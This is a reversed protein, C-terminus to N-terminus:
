RADMFEGHKEDLMEAFGAVRGLSYMIAAKRPPRGVYNVGIEDGARLVSRRTLFSTGKANPELVTVDVQEGEYEWADTSRASYMSLEDDDAGILASHMKRLEHVGQDTLVRVVAGAEVKRLDYEVDAHPVEDGDSVNGGWREGYFM